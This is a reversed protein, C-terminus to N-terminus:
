QFLIPRGSKQALRSLEILRPLLPQGDVDTFCELLSTPTIRAQALVFQQWESKPPVVPLSSFVEAIESLERELAACAIASWEGDCDSHLIFVPFRAGAIGGEM